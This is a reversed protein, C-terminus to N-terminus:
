KKWIKETFIGQNSHFEIFYIGAPLNEINISQQNELKILAQNVINKVYINKIIFESDLKNIFFEGSTPNPYISIKKASFDIDSTATTAKDIWLRVLPTM